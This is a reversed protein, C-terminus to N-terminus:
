FWDLYRKLVRQMERPLVNVRCVRAAKKARDAEYRIKFANYDWLFQNYFFKKINDENCNNLSRIGAITLNPNKWFGRRLDKAIAKNQAAATIDHIDDLNLSPNSALRQWNCSYHAFGKSRLLFDIVFKYTINPNLEFSALKECAMLDALSVTPMELEYRVINDVRVRGDPLRKIHDTINKGNSFYNLNHYRFTTDPGRLNFIYCMNKNYLLQLGGDAGWPSQCLDQFIRMFENPQSTIYHQMHAFEAAGFTISVRRPGNSVITFTNDSM